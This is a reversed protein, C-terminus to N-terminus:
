TNNFSYPLSYIFIITLYKKFILDFTSKSPQSSLNIIQLLKDILVTKYVSSNTSHKNLIHELWEANVGLVNFMILKM